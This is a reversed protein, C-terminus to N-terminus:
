WYHPCKCQVAREFLRRRAKTSTVQLQKIFILIDCLYSPIFLTYVVGGELALTDPQKLGKGKHGFHWKAFVLKSFFSCKLLLKM